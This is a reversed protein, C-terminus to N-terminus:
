HGGPQDNLTGNIGGKYINGNKMVFVTSEMNMIKTLPNGPVAVIDASKGSQLTGITKEWGLLRAANATGAM